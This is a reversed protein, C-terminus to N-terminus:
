QSAHRSFWALALTRTAVGDTDIKWVRCVVFSRRHEADKNHVQRKLVGAHKNWGSKGDNARLNKWQGVVHVDNNPGETSRQDREVGSRVMPGLTSAKCITM